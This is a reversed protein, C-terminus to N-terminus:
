VAYETITGEYLKNLVWLCRLVLGSSWTQYLRGRQEHSAELHSSPAPDM